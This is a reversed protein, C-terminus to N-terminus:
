FLETKIALEFSYLPLFFIDNDNYYTNCVFLKILLFTKVWIQGIFASQLQTYNYIALIAIHDILSVKADLDPADILNKQNHLFLCKIFADALELLNSHLNFIKYYQTTIHFQKQLHVIKNKILFSIVGVFIFYSLVFFCFYYMAFFFVFLNM